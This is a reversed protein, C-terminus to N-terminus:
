VSDMGSISLEVQEKYTDVGSFGNLYVPTHWRANPAERKLARKVQRVGKRSPMPSFEFLKEYETRVHKLFELGDARLEPALVLQYRINNYFSLWEGQAKSHTSANEGLKLYSAVATLISVFVSTSGTATIITSEYAPYSKSLFQAAANTASITILPLQFWTLMKKYRWHATRHIKERITAESCYKECLKEISHHWNNEM